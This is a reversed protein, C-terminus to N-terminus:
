SEIYSRPDYPESAFVILVSGADGYTQSSWVGPELLLALSGSDLALSAEEGAHRVLVEIRGKACVLLQRASRHAHGGRETGAPVETVVFVRRPLFPLADFDFPVLLGRRDGKAGLPILRARGGLFSDTQGPRGTKETAAAERMM